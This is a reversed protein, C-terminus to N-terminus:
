VSGRDAGQHRNNQAIAIMAIGCVLIVLCGTTQLYGLKESYVAPKSGLEKAFEEEIIDVFEPKM